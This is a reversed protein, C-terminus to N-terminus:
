EADLVDTQTSKNRRLYKFILYCILCFVFIDFIIMQVWENEVAFNGDLNSINPQDELYLIPINESNKYIVYKSHDVEKITLYEKENVIYSYKFTYSTYSRHTGSEYANILIASNPVGKEKLAKLQSFEKIPSYHIWFIMFLFLTSFLIIITWSFIDKWNYSNKNIM